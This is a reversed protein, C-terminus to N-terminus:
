TTLEIKSILPTLTTELLEIIKASPNENDSIM